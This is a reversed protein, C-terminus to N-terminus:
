KPDEGLERICRNCQICDNDWHNQVGLDCCGFKRAPRLGFLGSLGGLAFLFAGVPCLNRCYFRFNFLAGLSIVICLGMAAGLLHESLHESFFTSLPDIAGAQAPNPGYLSLIVFLLLVYRTGRMIKEMRPSPNYLLHLRAGLRSLLEQLAGFPCLHACWLSGLLPTTVLVFATLIFAHLNSLPPFNFRALHQLWPISLSVNM